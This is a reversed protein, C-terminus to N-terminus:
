GPLTRARIPSRGRADGEGEGPGRHTPPRNRGPHRKDELRLQGVELGHRAALSSRWSVWASVAATSAAVVAIVVPASSV